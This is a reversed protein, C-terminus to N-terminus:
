ICPRFLDSFVCSDDLYVITSIYNNGCSPWLFFYHTMSPCLAHNITTWCQEFLLFGNLICLSHNEGAAIFSHDQYQGLSVVIAVNLSALNKNGLGLEGFIFMSLRLGDTLICFLNNGRIIEM